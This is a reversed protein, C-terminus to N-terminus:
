GGTRGKACQPCAGESGDPRVPLFWENHKPCKQARCVTFTNCKECLFVSQKRDGDSRRQAKEKSRVWEMLRAPSLSIVNGCTDCMWQTASADDDPLAPDATNRYYLVGAAILAVLAIITGALKNM